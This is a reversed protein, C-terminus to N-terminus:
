DSADTALGSRQVWALSVLQQARSKELMNWPSPISSPGRPGYPFTSARWSSKNREPSRPLSNLIHFSSLLCCSSVTAKAIQGRMFKRRIGSYTSAQCITAPSTAACDPVQSSIDRQYMVFRRSEVMIERAAWHVLARRSGTVVGDQPGFLRWGDGEM